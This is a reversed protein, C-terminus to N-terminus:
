VRDVKQHFREGSKGGLIAAGLAVALSSRAMRGAVYGGFLYGIALVVLLAIGGAVGITQAESGSM